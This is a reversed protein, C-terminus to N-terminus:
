KNCNDLYNEKCSVRCLLSFCAQRIAYCTLFSHQEQRHRPLQFCLARLLIYRAKSNKIRWTAACCFFVICGNTLDNETSVNDHYWWILQFFRHLFLSFLLWPLTRWKTIDSWWKQNYNLYYCKCFLLIPFHHITLKTMNNNTNYM